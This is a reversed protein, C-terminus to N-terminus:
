TVDKRSREGGDRVLDYRSRLDAVDSATVGFYRAIKENSMSLDILAALAARGIPWRCDRALISLKRLYSDSQPSVDPSSQM